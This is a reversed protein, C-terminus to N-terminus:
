DVDEASDAADIIGAHEQFRNFNEALGGLVDGRRFYIAKPAFNGKAVEVFYKNLGSLPGAISHSVQIAFYGVVAIVFFTLVARGTYCRTADAHFTWFFM